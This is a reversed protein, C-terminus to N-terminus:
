EDTGGDEEVQEFKHTQSALTFAIDYGNDSAFLELEDLKALLEAYDKLDTLKGSIVITAIPNM